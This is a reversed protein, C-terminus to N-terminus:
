RGPFRRPDFIKRNGVTEERERRNAVIKQWSRKSVELLQFSHLDNRFLLASRDRYFM